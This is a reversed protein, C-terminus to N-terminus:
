EAYRAIRFGLDHRGVAAGDRWALRLEPTRGTLWGAGRVVWAEGSEPGVPDVFSSSADTVYISYRDNTWEQVNGGLDQIGLPNAPYSGVPASVRHGDEYGSIVVATLYIASQDAYNGSRAAVPLAEGWPYKRTAARGDFRAAYEWEAETPLRYGTTVPQALQLRGNKAVYAPPLGDRASLWNCFAAADQWGVRVVPQRDLDLSEERHIGSAHEARFARFEANSVERVGLYFPRQLAVTREAENSRRGPERRPSGMVFKGGRVLKLEQGLGTKVTTPLRAARAEEPTTLRFEVTQALGSTPTVTTEFSAFGAKRVEIRHPATPLQLVQNAAGRPQGDVLLEADEPQGRLRIEGLVPELRVMLRGQEGSGLRVSREASAYGPRSLTVEQELGPSLTLVLPAKGRYRGAVSVDAGAPETTVRLTADPRGLEIPGVTLPEGGRVTFPSSFDRYGAYALRLEHRGADLDVEFPTLGLEMGDVTVRAGAPTSEIRVPAFAPTLSVVLQQLEDGGLIDVTERHALYRDAEVLLERTGAAIELTGPLEGVPRGDVTLRAKVGGTDVELRGPLRELPVVLVQDPGRRIETALSAPAYGAAQVEVTYRGPLVLYRGGVGVELWTGHFEVELDAVAPTTRVSVAVSALLIGLLSLVALAGVGAAIRTWPPASRVARREAPPPQYPQLEIPIREPAAEEELAYAAAGEPPLTRDHAEHLLTLCPLGREEHLALTASGVELQRGPALVQALGSRPDEIVLQGDRLDILAAVSGAAAGPLLLDAGVGGLKLPLEAAGFDRVGLPEVIRLAM